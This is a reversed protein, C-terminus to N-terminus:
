DMVLVLMHRISGLSSWNDTWFRCTLGNSVRMKICQYILPSLKLLKNIKWSFRRNPPTTWLNNLSGQLVEEVFWAVWISGSQFFLLWILGSPLIFSRIMNYSLRTQVIRYFYTTNQDGEKLWNIRSRQKFYSEEIMRLFNWRELAQKELEFLQMTPTQM